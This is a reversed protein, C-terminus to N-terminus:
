KKLVFTDKAMTSLSSEIGKQSKLSEKILQLTQTDLTQKIATRQLYSEHLNFGAVIISSVTAIAIVWTAWKLQNYYNQTETNLSKISDNVEDQNEYYKKTDNNLSVVSKHHEDERILNRVFEYGSMSFSINVTTNDLNYFEGLVVTRFRNPEYEYPCSFKIYGENRLKELASVIRNFNNDTDNNIDRLEKLYDTINIQTENIVDNRYLYIVIQHAISGKM